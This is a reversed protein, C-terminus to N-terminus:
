EAELSSATTAAREMSDGLEKHVAEDSVTLILCELVQSWTSFGEQMLVKQLFIQGCCSAAAVYEAETTSTEVVTQKKCYGGDFEKFDLLYAINGTMHRSCGSDVFGTDDQQPKGKKDVLFVTEKDVNLSSEIFSSTDESVQEKVLPDNSNEKSADLKEDCVINSEQKSDKSGYSKFEPNKFEDLGFYSLNLK